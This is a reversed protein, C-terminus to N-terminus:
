SSARDAVRAAPRLRRRLLPRSPPGPRRNRRQSARPQQRGPHTAYPKLVGLDFDVRASSSTNLGRESTYQQYYVYDTSAVYSLELRRMRFTITAAPTLTFTFDHKPDIAENFVNNDVGADKLVVSPSIRVPGLTLTGPRCPTPRAPRGLGSARDVLVALCALLAASRLLRATM